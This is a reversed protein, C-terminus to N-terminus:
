GAVRHRGARAGRRVKALGLMVFLMSLCPVIGRGCVSTCGRRCGCRCWRSCPPDEKAPAVLIYDSFHRINGCCTGVTSGAPCECTAAVTSFSDNCPVGPPCEADTVCDANPDFGCIRDRHFFRLEACDTPDLGQEVRDFSMCLEAEPCFDLDTPEFTFAM